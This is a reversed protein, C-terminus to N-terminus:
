WQTSLTLQTKQLHDSQGFPLLWTFLSTPHPHQDKLATGRTEAIAEVRQLLLLAEPLSLAQSGPKNSGLRLKIATTLTGQVSCGM